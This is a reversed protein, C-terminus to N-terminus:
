DLEPIQATHFLQHMGQHSVDFGQVTATNIVIFQAACKSVTTARRRPTRHHESDPAAAQHLAVGGQTARRRAAASNQASAASELASGGGHLVEVTVPASNHPTSLMKQSESETARPSSTVLMARNKAAVSVGFSIRTDDRQQKSHSVKVAPPSSAESDPGGTQRGFQTRLPGMRPGPAVDSDM